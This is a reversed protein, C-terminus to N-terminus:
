GKQLGPVAPQAVRMEIETVVRDLEDALPTHDTAKFTDALARYYWLTGERGGTYRQWLAEGILCYTRYLARANHLKDAASV